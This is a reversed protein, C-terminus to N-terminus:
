LADKVEIENDFFSDIIENTTKFKRIKKSISSFLYVNEDLTDVVINKHKRDSNIKLEFFVEYEIDDLRVRTFEYKSLGRDYNYVNPIQSFLNEIKIDKKLNGDIFIYCPFGEDEICVLSLKDQFEFNKFIFEKINSLGVSYKKEYNSSFNSFVLIYITSTLIIVIILEILTFSKRM